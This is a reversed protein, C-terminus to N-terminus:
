VADLEKIDFRDSTLLFKVLQKKLDEFTNLDRMALDDTTKSKSRNLYYEYVTKELDFWNEAAHNFVYNFLDDETTKLTRWGDEKEKFFDKYSTHWGLDIDFGNGIVIVTGM